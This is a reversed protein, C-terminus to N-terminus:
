VLANRDSITIVSGSVARWSIKQAKQDSNSNLSSLTRKDLEYSFKSKLLDLNALKSQTLLVQNNRDTM